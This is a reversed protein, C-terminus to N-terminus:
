LTEQKPLTRLIEGIIEFSFGKRELLGALRRRRAEPGFRALSKLKKEAERLAVDKESSDEFVGGLVEHIIDRHIGKSKLEQVLRRKGFGRLRIRSQAWQRAFKEDDVYGYRALDSLVQGRVEETFGKDQLKTELELRSRPRIALCRYAANKARTIEKENMDALNIQGRVPRNQFRQQDGAAEV